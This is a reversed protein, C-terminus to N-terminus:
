TLHTHYAVIQTDTLLVTTLIGVHVYTLSGAGHLVAGLDVLGDNTGGLQEVQVRQLVLCRKLLDELNVPASLLCNCLDGSHEGPARLSLSPRSADPGGDGHNTGEVLGVTVSLRAVLGDDRDKGVELAAQALAASQLTM